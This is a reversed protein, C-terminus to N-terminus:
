LAERIVVMANNECFIIIGYFDVTYLLIAWFTMFNCLEM